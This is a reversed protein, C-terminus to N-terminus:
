TTDRPRGLVSLIDEHFEFWINHASDRRPNCLMDSDGAEIQDLAAAFRRRYDAYRPILPLLAVLAAAMQDIVELAKYLAGEDGGAQQWVSLRAIFRTNLAEFRTYWQTVTTDSRLAAYSERYHRQVAASGEPLLMHGGPMSLLLGSAAAWELQAQLRTPALALLSALQETSALKKLHVANLLVFATADLVVPPPEGTMSASSAYGTTM